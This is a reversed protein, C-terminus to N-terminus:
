DSREFIDHYAGIKSFISINLNKIDELSVEHVFGCSCIVMYHTSVTNSIVPTCKTVSYFKLSNCM